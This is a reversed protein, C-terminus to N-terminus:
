KDEPIGLLAYLGTRARDWLVADKVDILGLAQYYMAAAKEKNNLKVLCEAEEVIAQNRKAKYDNGLKELPVLRQVAAGSFEQRKDYSAAYFPQLGRAILNSLRNAENGFQDLADVAAKCNGSDYLDRAQKELAAVTSVTPVRDGIKQKAATLDFPNESQSQAPGKEQAQCAITSSILPLAILLHKSHIQIM